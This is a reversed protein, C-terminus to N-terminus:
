IWPRPTSSVRHCNLPYSSLGSFSSFWSSNTLISVRVFHRNRAFIKNLSTDWTVRSNLQLSLDEEDIEFRNKMSLRSLKLYVWKTKFSIFNAKRLYLTALILFIIIILVRFNTFNWLSRTLCIWESVSMDDIIISAQFYKANKNIELIKISNGKAHIEDPAIKQRNFSATKIRCNAGRYRRAVFSRWGRWLLLLLRRIYLIRPEEESPCIFRGHLAIEDKELFISRRPPSLRSPSAHRPASPVLIEDPHACNAADPTRLSFFFAFPQSPLPASSFCLFTGGLASPFFVRASERRTVCEQCAAPLSPFGRRIPTSSPRVVPVNAAPLFAGGPGRLSDDTRLNGKKRRRSSM